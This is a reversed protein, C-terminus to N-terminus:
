VFAVALQPCRRCALGVAARDALRRGPEVSGPWCGALRRASWVTALRTRARRRLVAATAAPAATPSVGAAALWVAAIALLIALETGM